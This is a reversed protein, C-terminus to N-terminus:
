GQGSEPPSRKPCIPSHVDLRIGDTGQDRRDLRTKGCGHRNGEGINRNKKKRSRMVDTFTAGRMMMMVQM